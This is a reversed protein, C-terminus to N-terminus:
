NHHRALFKLWQGKPGAGGHIPMPWIQCDGLGATQLECRFEQESFWRQRHIEIDQSYDNLKKKFFQIRVETMRRSPWSRWHWKTMVGSLRILQTSESQDQKVPIGSLFDGILYGGPNLNEQCCKLTDRLDSRSLLYNFTDGNCTILDVSKQLKYHRMDRCLLTVQSARLRFAAVRLMASSLDIGILPIGYRTLYKLFHGSGCGIDALSTFRLKFQQRCAEFSSIIAPLIADGILHDYLPALERYIDRRNLEGKETANVINTTRQM